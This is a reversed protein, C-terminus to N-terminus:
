THLTDAESVSQLGADAVALLHAAWIRMAAEREPFYEHRQYVAAVGRIAGSVHNLLKDAVEWGVGQRALVTAGTRRFDHLRWPVLAAPAADGALKAREQVILADLRAKAHSFGSVPTRGTTTFVLKSGALRPVTRLISQAPESLHILHARRNKARSGPLEWIQFDASLEAWHLGATEAERQLTLLLFRFYSAWPWGLLGAARWIEGLEIDTLVRDRSTDRGEPRVAGFPNITLLERGIAWGYLASGYARVRRAMVDPRKAPLTSAGKKDSAAPKKTMKDLARRVMATDISHAPLPLLAALGRRLARPGERRYSASRHLLQKTEWESILKDLTLADLKARQRRARSEEAEAALTAKRQTAPDEGALVQGRLIEAMKRAQAPTLEGYDGLRVRHVRAGRRYQLLFTKTGIQTVRVAFGKIEDDFFLRDRRDPPCTLADIERKTLKM